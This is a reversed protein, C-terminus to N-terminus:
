RDRQREARREARRRARRERRIANCSDCRYGDTEAGCDRCRGAAVRAARKRANHQAQRTSM